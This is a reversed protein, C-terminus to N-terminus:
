FEIYVEAVLKDDTDQDETVYDGYAGHTYELKLMALDSLRKGFLVGYRTEAYDAMQDTMQYSVGYLNDPHPEYVFETNLASPQDGLHDENVDFDREDFKDLAATFDALLHYRNGGWDYRGFVNYAAAREHHPGDGALRLDSSGLHTNYGARLKWGDHCADAERESINWVVSYDSVQDDEDVLDVKPNFAYVSFGWGAKEVGTGLAHATTFGLDNVAPYTPFYYDNNGFPLLVQGLQVFWGNDPNKYKAWAEYVGMTEDADNWLMSFRASWDKQSVDWGVEGWYVKTDGFNDTGGANLKTRSSQAQLYFKGYLATEIGAAEEAPGADEEAQPYLSSLYTNDASDEAEEAADEAEIAAVRQVLNADGAMVPLGSSKVGLQGLEDAFAGLLSSLAEQASADPGSGNLQVEGYNGLAKQALVAFELRSLEGQPLEFGQLLGASDLATLQGYAPDGAAVRDFPRAAGLVLTLLVLLALAGCSMYHRM